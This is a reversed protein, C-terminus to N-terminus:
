AERGRVADSDHSIIHWYSGLIFFIPALLIIVVVSFVSMEADYTGASALKLRAPPECFYHNIVNLGQYLLCLTFASHISCAFAGSIWSVTALQVSVRQTSYHLPKYVTVYRDYPIVALLACETYVRRLPLCSDM